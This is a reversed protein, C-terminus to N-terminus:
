NLVVIEVRRNTARGQSTDNSDKPANSGFTEVSLRAPDIAFTGTMVDLLGLGRAAALEWNDHYPGGQVPSADAYGALRIHNPLAQLVDAVPRLAEVTETTLAAQGADFRVAQPLRIALGEPVLRAEVHLERLQNLTTELPRAPAVPEAAATQRAASRAAGAVFFVLLITLLDAYSVAWRERASVHPAGPGLPAASSRLRPM